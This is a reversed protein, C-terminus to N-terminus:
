RMRFSRIYGDSGFICAFSRGEPRYPDEITGHVRMSTANHPEVNAIAVRGHRAARGRCAEAAAPGFEEATYRRQGSAQHVAEAVMPALGVVDCGGLPWAGALVLALMTKRM